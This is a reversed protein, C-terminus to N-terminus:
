LEAMEAVNWDPTAGVRSAVVSGVRNAFTAVRSVPWGQALGHLFAAAFADGAGVSDAVTVPYGAAVAYQGDALVACGREGLTVCVARWGFRQAAARCFDELEPPLGNFQSVASMESENMKVVTARALLESVLEPSDFGPRLNVDYFRTAAPLADLVRLL